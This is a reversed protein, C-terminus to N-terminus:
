PPYPGRYATQHIPVTWLTKGTRTDYATVAGNNVIATDALFLASYPFGPLVPHRVAGTELDFVALSAPTTPDGVIAFAHDASIGLETRKGDGETLDIPRANPRATTPALTIGDGRSIRATKGTATTLEIQGTLEIVDGVPAPVVKASCAALDIQFYGQTHSSASRLMDPTPAAGGAYHTSRTWGVYIAVGNDFGWVSSTSGLGDVFPAVVQSIAHCGNALKGTRADLVVLKGDRDLAALQDGRIALPKVAVTTSWRQKGTTAAIAVLSPSTSSGATVDTMAYVMKTARNAIAHAGLAVSAPAPAAAVTGCLWLLSILTIRSM